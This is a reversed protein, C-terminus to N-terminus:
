QKKDGQKAELVRQYSLVNAFQSDSHIIASPFHQLLYPKLLLSGGGTFVINQMSSISIKRSKAFNALQKVHAHILQEILQTSGEQKQGELYVCKDHLIQDIDDDFFSIGYETTLTEAIKAKLINIGLTATLMTDIQPVLNNAELFSVNLSGIDAILVRKNRYENANHYLPLCEPLVTISSIRFSFAKNNVELGIVKADQQIFQAYNQRNRNNKYLSTPTNIALHVNALPSAGVKDLVKAIALYICILHENTQKTLDYNTHDSSLSDGVIYTRDNYKVSDSNSFLDTTVDSLEAVKTHFIGKEIINDENRWTFKSSSKGSDISILYNNYM